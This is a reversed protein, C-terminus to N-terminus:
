LSLAVQILHMWWLVHTMSTTFATELVISIGPFERFSPGAIYIRTMQVKTRFQFWGVEDLSFLEYICRLCQEPLTDWFGFGM